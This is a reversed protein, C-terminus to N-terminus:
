GRSVEKSARYRCARWDEFADHCKLCVDSQRGGVANCQRNDKITWWELRAKHDSTTAGCLDCQRLEAM